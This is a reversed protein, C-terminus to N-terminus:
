AKHAELAKMYRDAVLFKDLLLRRTSEDQIQDMADLGMEFLEIEEASVTLSKNLLYRQKMALIVDMCAQLEAVTQPVYHEKAIELAVKLRFGINHWDTLSQRNEKFAALSPRIMTKLRTADKLSLGLIIPTYSKTKRRKVLM